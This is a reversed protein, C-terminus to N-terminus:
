SPRFYPLPKHGKRKLNPVNVQSLIKWLEIGRKGAVHYRYAKSKM